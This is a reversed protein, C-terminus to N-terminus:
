GKKAFTAKFDSEPRSYRISMDAVADKCRRHWQTTGFYVWEGHLKALIEIRPYLKGTMEYDSLGNAM